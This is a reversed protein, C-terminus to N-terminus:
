TFDWVLTGNSISKSSIFIIIRFICRSIHLCFKWSFILSLSNLISNWNWIIVEISIRYYNPCCPMLALKSMSWLLTQKMHWYLILFGCQLCLLTSYLGPFIWNTSPLSMGPSPLPVGSWYEQRSFVMSPPAQYVATWPTVLLWVHSLLKVKM